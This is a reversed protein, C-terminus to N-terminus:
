TGPGVPGVSERAYYFMSSVALVVIVWAQTFSIYCVSVSDMLCM